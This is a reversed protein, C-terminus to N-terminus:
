QESRKISKEQSPHTRNDNETTAMYIYERVDVVPVDPNDLVKRLVVQENIAFCYIM